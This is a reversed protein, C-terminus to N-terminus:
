VVSKRDKGNIPDYGSAALERGDPMPKGITWRDSALDYIRTKPSPGFGRRQPVDGGFVYLKNAPPYYVASAAANADPMRNLSSWTDTSPVYKYLTPVMMEPNVSSWGGAVYAASGDSDSAADGLAVPMPEAVQWDANPRPLPPTATVPSPHFAAAVAGLVLALLLKSRM